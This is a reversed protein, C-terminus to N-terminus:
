LESQLLNYILDFAKGINPTNKLRIIESLTLILIQTLFYFNPM